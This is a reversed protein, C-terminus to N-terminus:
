TEVGWVPSQMYYKGDEKLVIVPTNTPIPDTEAGQQLQTVSVVQNSKRLRVSYLNPGQRDQVYGFYANGAGTGVPDAIAAPPTIQRQNYDNMSSLNDPLATSVPTDLVYTEVQADGSDGTEEMAVPKVPTYNGLKSLVYLNSVGRFFGSPDTLYQLPNGTYIGPDDQSGWVVFNSAPYAFQYEDMEGLRVPVWVRMSVECNQSDYNCTEVLGVVPANSVLGPMNVLVPDLSELNIKTLDTKFTILKFLNSKRMIWYRASWSVADVTSFAFYNYREEHVGYKQINYRFVLKNLREQYENFKWEAVFKTVVSETDTTSISLSDEIVDSTSITDVPTPEVPLYRIYVTRGRVWLACKGMFALEKIYGLTDLRERVVHNMQIADTYLRAQGFSGPDYQLNSFNQICYALIDVMRGPVPGDVNVYLDDSEWLQDGYSNLITTLPQTLVIATATVVIGDQRQFPVNVISYTSQPLPVFMGQQKGFVGFVNAAGLSVVYRMPMNLVKIRTGGNVWRFKQRGESGVFNTSTQNEQTYLSSVPVTTFNSSLSVDQYGQNYSQLIQFNARNAKPIKVESILTMMVGDVRAIWRTDGIEVLLNVGRPVNESLVPVVRKDYGLQRQHEQDKVGIEEDIRRFENMYDNFQQYFQVSQDFYQKYTNYDDAPNSIVTQGLVQTTSEVGDNYSAATLAAGVSSQYAMMANAFAKEKAKALDSLEENWLKTDVIGFGAATLVTPTESIQLTKVLLNRGFVLPWPEGLLNVPIQNFYSEDPSFGLELNELLTMVTIDLTRDGEKWEIPTNIVGELLVFAQDLPIKDFWQLVEARLKHLDTTNFINKLAGDEDSLTVSVSASSASGALSVTDDFGSLSLIRGQINYEPYDKDAYDTYNGDSWHVRVVIISEIGFQKNIEALATSNITRM